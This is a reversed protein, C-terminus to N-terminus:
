CCSRTIVRQNEMRRTHKDNTHVPMQELLRALGNGVSSRKTLRRQHPLSSSTILSRARKPCYASLPREISLMTTDGKRWCRWHCKSSNMPNRSRNWGREKRELLKFASNHGMHCSLLSLRAAHHRAVVMKEKPEPLLTAVTGSFAM